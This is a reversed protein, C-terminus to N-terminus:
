RIKYLYGLPIKQELKLTNIVRNSVIYTPRDKPTHRLVFHLPRFQYIELAPLNSWYLYFLNSHEFEPINVYVLSNKPLTLKLEQATDKIQNQLKADPPLANSSKWNTMINTASVIVLASIILTTLLKKSKIVSFFVYSLLGVLLSLKLALFRQSTLDFLVLNTKISWLDFRLIIYWFIASLSVSAVWGGYNKQYFEKVSAAILVTGVPLTLYIFNSIKSAGFSLIILFVSIWLAPIFLYPNKKIRSFGYGLAVFIPWILYVGFIDKFYTSLYYDWPRGWYEVSEFLHNIQVEQEYAFEKPYHSALYIIEPAIIALFTAGAFLFYLGTKKSRQYFICAFFLVLFFIAVLGGKCFYALAALLGFYIFYKKEPERIIQFILGLALIGFLAFLIDGAGSFQRGQVLEFTYPNFAMLTAAALGAAKGFFKKGFWYTALILLEAALVAALRVAFLNQGGFKYIIASFYFPLLPKHLWVYNDTWNRFDTDLKEPLLTPVSFDTALNKIVNVHVAEDWLTLYSHGLNHLYLFGSLGLIALLIIEAFRNKIRNLM